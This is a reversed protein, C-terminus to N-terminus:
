FNSDIEFEKIGLSDGYKLTNEGSDERPKSMHQVVLKSAWLGVNKYFTEGYDDSWNYLKTKTDDRIQRSLHKDAFNGPFHFSVGQDMLDYLLFNAMPNELNGIKNKKFSNFVMIARPYKFKSLFEDLGPKIIMIEEEKPVMTYPDKDEAKKTLIDPSYYVHALGRKLKGPELKEFVALGVCSVLDTTSLVIEPNSTIKAEKVDVKGDFKGDNQDIIVKM